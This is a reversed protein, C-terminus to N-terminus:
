IDGEQFNRETEAEDGTLEKSHTDTYSKTEPNFENELIYDDYHDHTVDSGNQM